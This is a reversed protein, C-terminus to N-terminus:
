LIFDSATLGLRNWVVITMETASDGDNDIKILSNGGSETILVEGRALSFGDNERFVFTDNAATGARADIRSLDIRDNAAGGGQDFGFITDTQGFTAGRASDTIKLFRIVDQGGDADSFLEDIGSDGILTDAGNNGFIRDNGGRGRLYDNGSAGSVENRGANGGLADSGEGGEINEVNRIVDRGFAGFNQASTIRLDVKVGFFSVTGAGYDDYLVGFNVSDKGTGGDIFDNGRGM